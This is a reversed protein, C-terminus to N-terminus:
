SHVSDKIYKLKLIDYSQESNNNKSKQMQFFLYINGIEVLKNSYITSKSSMRQFVGFGVKLDKIM